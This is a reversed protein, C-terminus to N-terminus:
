CMPMSRFFVYIFSLRVEVKAVGSTKAKHAFHCELLKSLKSIYYSIRNIGSSKTTHFTICCTNPALSLLYLESVLLDAGLTYTM